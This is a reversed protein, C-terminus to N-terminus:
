VTSAPGHLINLLEEWSGNTATGAADLPDLLGGDRQQAKGINRIIRWARRFEDRISVIGNHTVTRAVNHELEFPDEIAFLYRHRIEKTEEVVKHALKPTKIEAVEEGPSAEKDCKTHDEPELAKATSPTPPAIASTEIVTKAGVWGKEQKSLLGGQTRLSLVERGWDFSRHQVTTMPGNQAFYEFFGRLLHGVSDHNHNLLKREALNKIEAENRWFRVDCGNCTTRAEIEAPSLYQPPAKQIAQLNPCVFPQAVNVLYHLVMLVYGYSSLTGRYPTNIGRTKAWNKVFLIMQKVRPDCHSYCRLLLTNHLALHASFNIDCQVGIDTKPFELHDKYRDRPKNPSLSTPDPLQRIKAILTQEGTDCTDGKDFADLKRLLSIYQEVHPRDDDEYVQMKLAHEYDIALQLARHWVGIMELTADARAAQQLAERMQKHGVGSIYHAVLVSELNDPSELKHRGRLDELLRQARTHYNLPPEHQIQELFVLQISSIKKLKESAIYLDRNYRSTEGASIHRDQLSRWHEVIVKCEEERRDNSEKVPRTEWAMALQEGEIQLSIGHLTRVNSLPDTEFLSIISKYGQLRERLPKSHIGNVFAHCIDKLVAGEIDNLDPSGASVDRGGLKRLLRKATNHYDNPSQQPKQKLNSLQEEYTEEVKESSSEKLDVNPETIAGSDRGSIVRPSPEAQPVQEEEADEDFGSEWKLREQLLDNRLNETPKQCLKIIPVRTRTLLRAGFGMDLLKKELLRPIPSDASDPLPQSKPSLLALDMDSAKTAFGSMMSGFCQLEVTTAEFKQSKLDNMEYNAIAERCAQEVLARFAEKEAEEDADIGVCPIIQHLLAELHASQLATEEPNGSYPPGRGQSQYPGPNYLQRGGPSPRPSFPVNQFQQHHNPSPRPAQNQSSNQYQPMPSHPSRQPFFNQPSYPTPPGRQQYRPSYQQNHPFRQNQQMQPNGHQQSQSWNSNNYGGSAPGHGAQNPRPNIPISLQSNMQRRQAQNPRKRGTQNQAGIPPEVNQPHSRTLNELYAQQEVPTAALMHPPLQPQSQSEQVGSPPIPASANSLILGRLRSELDDGRTQDQSPFM